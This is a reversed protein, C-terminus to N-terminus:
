MIPAALPCVKGFAHMHAVVDHRYMREFEAAVDYDIDTLHLYMEDLQEQRIQTIGLKMQARAVELWIGRWMSFKWDDSFLRQMEESTYRTSFPSVYRDTRNKEEAM